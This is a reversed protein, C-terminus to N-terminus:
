RRWRGRLRSSPPGRSSVYYKGAACRHRLQRQRRPGGRNNGPRQSVRRSGSDLQNRHSGHQRLGGLLLGPEQVKAEKTDKDELLEQGRQGDQRSSAQRDQVVQEGVRRAAARDGRAGGGHHLRAAREPEPLQAVAAPLEERHAESRRRPRPQEM